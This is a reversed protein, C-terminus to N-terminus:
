LGEATDGLREFEREVCLWRAEIEVGGFVLRFATAPGRHHAVLGAPSAIGIPMPKDPASVVGLAPPQNRHLIPGDLPGWTSFYPPPPPPPVDYTM